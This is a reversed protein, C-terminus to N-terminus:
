QLNHKSLKDRYTSLKLNLLDAAKSKNGKAKQLANKLLEKEINNMILNYNMNEHLDFSLKSYDSLLESPIMDMTIKQCQGILVLRKVIHKLERINGPWSYNIFVDMVNPELEVVDCTPCSASLFKNVLLPIDEKRERLPPLTFPIVNLRYYLDERFLKEKVLDLLNKKTAAIIRVDVKIPSSGGVREFEKEQIFRLIKVQLDLPIDDVEDLFLTGGAALEFKGKKNKSAGTFSGKEHGFLESELLQSSLSACSIEVFPKRNRDSIEHITTALRNKGTGTEGTILIIEDASATIAIKKALEQMQPSESILNKISYQNTLREKLRINEKELQGIKIVRNLVMILEDPEFPKTLYDDAGKKMADVANSVTGFATMLIVAISKDYKKVYELIEIGNLKDKLQYDTVVADVHNSGIINLAKQSNDASFVKFGFDELEDTLTIRLIEEDEIILITNNNKM